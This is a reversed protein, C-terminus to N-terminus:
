GRSTIADYLMGSLVLDTADRLPSERSATGTAVSSANSCKACEALGLGYNTGHYGGGARRGNGTARQRGRRECRSQVAFTGRRWM